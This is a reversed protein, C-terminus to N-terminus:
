KLLVFYAAFLGYATIIVKADDDRREQEREHRIREGLETKSVNKPRTYVKHTRLETCKSLIRSHTGLPRAVSSFKRM